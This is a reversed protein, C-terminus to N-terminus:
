GQTNATSLDEAGQAAANGVISRYIDRSQEEGGVLGETVPLTDGSGDIVEKKKPKDGGSAFAMMTRMLEIKNNQQKSQWDTKIKVAALFSQPTIRLSKQKIANHGQAIYEDLAIVEEPRADIEDIVPRSLQLELEQHAKAQVEAVKKAAQVRSRDIYRDSVDEMHKKVHNYVGQYSVDIQAAIDQLTEDGQERKYAAYRIRKRLSIDTKAIQCTACNPKYRNPM